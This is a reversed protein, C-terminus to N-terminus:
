RIPVVGVIGRGDGGQEGGMGGQWGKGLEIRKDSVNYIM